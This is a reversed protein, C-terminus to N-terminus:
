PFPLSGRLSHQPFLTSLEINLTAENLRCLFTEILISVNSM